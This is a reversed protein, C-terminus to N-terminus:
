TQTGCGSRQDAGQRSQNSWDCLAGERPHMHPHCGPMRLPSIEVTAELPQCPDGQPLPRRDSGGRSERSLMASRGRYRRPQPPRPPRCCLQGTRSVGWPGWCLGPPGAQDCGGHPGPCVRPGLLLNGQLLTGPGLSVADKVSLNKGTTTRAYSLLPRKLVHTKLSEWLSPLSRM